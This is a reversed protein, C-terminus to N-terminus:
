IRATRDSDCVTAGNLAALAPSFGLAGVHSFVERNMWDKRIERSNCRRGGTFPSVRELAYEITDM